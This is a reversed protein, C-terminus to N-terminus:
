EGHRRGFDLRLRDLPQPWEPDSDSFCVRIAPSGPKPLLWSVMAKAAATLVLPWQGHSSPRAERPLTMMRDASSSAASVM